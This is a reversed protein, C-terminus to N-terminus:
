GSYTAFSQNVSWNLTIIGRLLLRPTDYLSHGIDKDAVRAFVTQRRLFNGFGQLPM